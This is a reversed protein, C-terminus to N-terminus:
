PKQILVRLRWTKLGTRRLIRTEGGDVNNWVANFWQMWLIHLNKPYSLTVGCIGGRAEFRWVLAAFDVFWVVRLISCVHLLPLTSSGTRYINMMILWSVNKCNRLWNTLVLITVRDGVAQIGIRCYGWLRILHRLRVLLMKCRLRHGSIPPRPWLQVKRVDIGQLRLGDWRRSPNTWLDVRLQMRLMYGLSWLREQRRQVLIKYRSISIDIFSPLRWWQLSTWHSRLHNANDAFIKFIVENRSRSNSSNPSRRDRVLLGSIGRLREFLMAASDVFLKVQIGDREPCVALAASFMEVDNLLKPAGFYLFRTNLFLHLDWSTNTLGLFGSIESWSSWSLSSRRACNQQM